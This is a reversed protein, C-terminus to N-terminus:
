NLYSSLTGHTSDQIAWSSTFLIGACVVREKRAIPVDHGMSRGLGQGIFSEETLWKAPIKTVFNFVTVLVTGLDSSVSFVFPASFGVCSALRGVEGALLM